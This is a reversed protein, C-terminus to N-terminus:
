SVHVTRDRLVRQKKGAATTTRWLPHSFHGLQYSAQDFVSLVPLRDGMGTSVWSM